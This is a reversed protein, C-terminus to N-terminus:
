AWDEGYAGRNVLRMVDAKRIEASDINQPSALDEANIAHGSVIMMWDDDRQRVV